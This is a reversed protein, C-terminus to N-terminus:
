VSYAVSSLVEAGVDTTYHIIHHLRFLVLDWVSGKSFVTHVTLNLFHIKFLFRICVMQRCDSCLM